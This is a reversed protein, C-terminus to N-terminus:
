PQDSCSVYILSYRTGEYPTVWHPFRGDLKGLRGRTDVEAVLFPSCEVAIAGGNFEGSNHLIFPVLSSAHLLYHIHMSEVSKCHSDM